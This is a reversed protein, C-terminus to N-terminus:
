RLLTLDRLNSLMKQLSRPWWTQSSLILEQLQTATKDTTDCGNLICFERMNEFHRPRTLFTQANLAAPVPADLTKDLAVLQVRDDGGFEM